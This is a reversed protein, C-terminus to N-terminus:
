LTQINVKRYERLARSGAPCVLNILYEDTALLAAAETLSLAYVKNKANNTPDASHAPQKRNLVYRGSSDPKAIFLKGLARGRTGFASIKVVTGTM